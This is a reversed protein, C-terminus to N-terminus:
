SMELSFQWSKKNKLFTEKDFLQNKKILSCVIKLLMNIIANIIWNHAKGKEIKAQYYDYFFQGKRTAVSVAAQSLEGKM